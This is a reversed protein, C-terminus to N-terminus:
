QRGYCVVSFSGDNASGAASSVITINVTSASAPVALPLFAAIANITATCAYNTSAFPTAFTLTLAGTGTKGCTGGSINYSAQLTYTGSSNTCYAWVKAASDHSQAQSPTVAATSSTGTQQDSKSALTMPCAAGANSLDACAAQSVTGSGNAKLAGSVTGAGGKAAPVVNNYTTVGAVSSVDGSLNPIPHVHDQRSYRTSTGVAAAGNVLPTAAGAQGLVMGTTAIQTTNTDVAATPATPVGTLAPSALPAFATSTFANSGLTGGGGINLASGDTATFTITNSFTVAKGAAFALSGLSCGSVLGAGSGIVVVNAGCPTTLDGVDPTTRGQACASGVFICLAVLAAAIRTIM